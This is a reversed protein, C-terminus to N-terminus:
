IRIRMLGSKNRIIAENETRKLVQCRGLLPHNFVKYKLCEKIDPIRDPIKLKEPDILGKRLKFLYACYSDIIDSKRDKDLMRERINTKEELDAFTTEALNETSLAEMKYATLINASSTKMKFIYNLAKFENGANEDFLIPKLLLKIREKEFDIMYNKDIRIKNKSLFDKISFNIIKEKASVEVDEINDIEKNDMYEYIASSILLANLLTKKDLTYFVVARLVEDILNEWISNSLIIPLIKYELLEDRAASPEQHQLWYDVSEDRKKMYHSFLLIEKKYRDLDFLCGIKDEYPMLCKLSILFLQFEIGGIDDYCYNVLSKIKSQM